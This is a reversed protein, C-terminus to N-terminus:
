TMTPPTSALLRDIRYGSIPRSRLVYFYDNLIGGTTRVVLQILSYPSRNTNGPLCTRPIPLTEYSEGGIRYSMGNGPM